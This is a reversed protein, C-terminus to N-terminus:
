QTGQGRTEQVGHAVRAKWSSEIGNTESDSFRNPKRNGNSMPHTRARGAIPCSHRLIRTTSGDPPGTEDAGGDRDSRHVLWGVVRTDGDEAAESVARMGNRDRSGVELGHRLSDLLAHSREHDLQPKLDHTRLYNDDAGSALAAFGKRRWHRDFEHGALSQPVGAVDLGAPGQLHEGRREVEWALTSVLNTNFYM